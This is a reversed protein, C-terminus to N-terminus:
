YKPINFVFGLLDNIARQRGNRYESDHLTDSPNTTRSAELGHTRVLSAFAKEVTMTEAHEVFMACAEAYGQAHVARTVERLVTPLHVFDASLAKQAAEIAAARDGHRDASQDKAYSVSLHESM